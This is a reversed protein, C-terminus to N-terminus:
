NRLFSTIIDCQTRRVFWRSPCPGVSSRRINIASSKNPSTEQLAPARNLIESREFDVLMAKGGESSWLVNALRM